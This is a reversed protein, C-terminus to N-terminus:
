CEQLAHSAYICSQGWDETFLSAAWVVLGFVASSSRAAGEGRAPGTGPSSPARAGDPNQTSYGTEGKDSGPLVRPVCPKRDKPHAEPHPQSFHAYPFVQFFDTGRAVQSPAKGSAQKGLVICFAMTSLIQTM